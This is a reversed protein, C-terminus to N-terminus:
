HTFWRSWQCVQATETHMAAFQSLFTNVTMAILPKVIPTRALISNKFDMIVQTLYHGSLIQIHCSLKLCISVNQWYLRFFNNHARNLTVQVIKKYFVLKILLEPDTTVCYLSAITNLICKVKAFVEELPMLDPSYPFLFCLRAGCGTIIKQVRDLHNISMNDVHLLIVSQPSQGDYTLLIALVCQCMFREFIDGNVNGSM